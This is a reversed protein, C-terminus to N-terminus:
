GNHNYTQVCPFTAPHMIKLREAGPTHGTVWVAGGGKQFGTDVGTLGHLNSINLWKSCKKSVFNYLSKINSGCNKYKIVISM